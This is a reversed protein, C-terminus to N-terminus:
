DSVDARRARVKIGQVHSASIGYHKAVVRLSRQDCRIARVEADTLVNTRGPLTRNHAQTRRDAWRCNEPSYGKDNDIRDISMGSPPDGMDSYFNEFSQWRECVSIGKGGWYKYGPRGENNCRSKMGSWVRYAKSKSLGHSTNKAITLESALCGCSRTHSTVLACAAVLAEAGCDCVCRWKKPPVRAVVVLRGFRQGTRDIFAPM